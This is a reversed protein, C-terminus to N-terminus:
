HFDGSLAAGSHLGCGDIRAAANAIREVSFEAEMDGMFAICLVRACGM